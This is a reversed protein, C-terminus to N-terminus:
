FEWRTFVGFNNKSIKTPGYQDWNAGFGFGFPGKKFGARLYLFSRNHHDETLNHNYVFQVRNYLSWTENLSPKFEYLGFLKLDQGENLLYSLITIALFKRNAFSHALGVMKSFGAVSNAEGGAALAFGKKGISYNVQFPIVMSNGMRTENDYNQNFVAITLINFKSEPAFNRKFVLQFDLREQGFMVEVPTPPSQQQALVAYSSLFALLSILLKFNSQPSFM